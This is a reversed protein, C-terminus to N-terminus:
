NLVRSMTSLRVSPCIDFFNGGKSPVTPHHCTVSQLLNSASLMYQLRCRWGYVYLHSASMLHDCAAKIPKRMYFYTACVFKGYLFFICFFIQYFFLIILRLNLVCCLMGRFKCDTAEPRSKRRLWSSSILPTLPVPLLYITRRVDGCKTNDFLENYMQKM